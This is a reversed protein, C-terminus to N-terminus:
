PSSDLFLVTIEEEHQFDMKVARNRLYNIVLSPYVEQAIDNNICMMSSKDKWTIVYYKLGDIFITGLFSPFFSSM